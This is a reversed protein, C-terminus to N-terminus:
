TRPCPQDDLPQRRQEPTPPRPECYLQICARFPSGPQRGRAAAAAGGGAGRVCVVVVWGGEDWGAAQGQQPKHDHMAPQTRLVLCRYFSILLLGDPLLPHVHRCPPLCVRASRQAVCVTQAGVAAPRLPQRAELARAAPRAACGPAPCNSCSANDNTMNHRREWGEAPWPWVVVAGPLVQQIHKAAVAAEPQQGHVRGAELAPAYGLNQFRLPPGCGPATGRAAQCPKAAATQLAGDKWRRPGGM